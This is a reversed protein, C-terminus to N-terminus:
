MHYIVQEDDDSKLKMEMIATPHNLQDIHMAKTKVDIRWSFSDLHSGWMTSEILRQHIQMFLSKTNKNNKSTFANM